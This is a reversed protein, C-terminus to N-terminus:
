GPVLNGMVVMEMAACEQHVWVIKRRWDYARMMTDRKPNGCYVCRLSMKKRREPKRVRDHDRRWLKSLDADVFGFPLAVSRITKYYSSLDDQFKWALVELASKAVDADQLFYARPKLYEPM